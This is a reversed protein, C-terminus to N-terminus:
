DYQGKAFFSKLEYTKFDIFYHRDSNLLYEKKIEEWLDHEARNLVGEDNVLQALFGRIAVKKDIIEKLRVVYDERM